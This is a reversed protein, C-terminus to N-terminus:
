GGIMSFSKITKQDRQSRLCLKYRESTMLLIEMRSRLSQNRNTPIYHLSGICMSADRCRGVLTKLINRISVYNPDYQDCYKCVEHHNAQLANSVEGEYGLISSEKNLM